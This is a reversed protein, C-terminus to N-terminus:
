DDFHLIEDLIPGPVALYFGLSVNGTEKLDLQFGWNLTEPSGLQLTSTVQPFYRRRKEVFLHINYIYDYPCM